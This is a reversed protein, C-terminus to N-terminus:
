SFLLVYPESLACVLDWSRVGFDMVRVNAPLPNRQMQWAVEVGFADDGLLINGLGAVLISTRHHTSKASTAWPAGSNTLEKRFEGGLADSYFTRNIKPHHTSLVKTIWKNAAPRLELRQHVRSSRYLPRLEM